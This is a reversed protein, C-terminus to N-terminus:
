TTIPKLWGMYAKEYADYGAPVTGIGTGNYANMISEPGGNYSGACM